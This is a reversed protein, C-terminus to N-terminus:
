LFAIPHGGGGWHGPLGPPPSEGSPPHGFGVALNGQWERGGEVSTGERGGEM